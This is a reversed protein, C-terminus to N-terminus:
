AIATYTIDLVGYAHVVMDQAGPTVTVELQLNDTSAAVIAAAISAGAANAAASEDASATLQLDPAAGQKLRILGTVNATFGEGQLAPTATSSAIICSVKLDVNLIAEDFTAYLKDFNIVSNNSIDRLTATSAVGSPISTPTSRMCLQFHGLDGLTAVPTVTNTHLLSNNNVINKNARGITYSSNVGDIENGFGLINTGRANNVDNNVGLITGAANGTLTNQYGAIFTSNTGVSEISNRNALSPRTSIVVNNSGRNSIDSSNRYPGIFMNKGQEVTLALNHNSSIPSWKAQVGSFGLNFVTEEFIDLANALPINDIVTNGLSDISTVVLQNNATDITVSQVVPTQTTIGTVTIPTSTSGDTYTVVITNPTGETYAVSSITEGPVPAPVTVVETTGDVYELTVLNAPQNYTFDSLIEDGSAELASLDIQQVEGNALNVTLSGTEENFEFQSVYTSLSQAGRGYATINGFDNIYLECDKLGAAKAADDDAYKPLSGLVSSLRVYGNPVKCRYKLIEEKKIAVDFNAM